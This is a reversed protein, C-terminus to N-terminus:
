AREVRNGEISSRKERAVLEYIEELLEPMGAGTVASIMRVDSRDRLKEPVSPAPYLDAKNLVVLFPRELLGRGHARLEERLLELERAPDDASLDLVFLLVRTREIHRLFDLGLGKGEHAGELIGPIDAIVFQRFDTLSVVGLNPSLTTFPYDAIKPRAETVRALLTSKGANPLGVLGVDAILKLELRIKREEGPQGPETRRPARNTSTKFHANGRGGRGGRAVLFRQGPETLDALVEETEAEQVITGPPVAVELDQGSRGTKGSGQGHMGRGGRYHRKYHFDRLTAQREDAVLYVDGGKGGDGGDPGGKPVFKERRFSMCGNGGHGAMVEIVARDLFM